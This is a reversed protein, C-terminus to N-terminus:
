MQVFQNDVGYIVWLDDHTNTARTKIEPDPLVCKDGTDSVLKEGDAEPMLIFNQM